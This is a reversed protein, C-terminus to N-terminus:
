CAIRFFIGWHKWIGQSKFHVTNIMLINSPYGFVMYFIGVSLYQKNFLGSLDRIRVIGFPLSLDLLM